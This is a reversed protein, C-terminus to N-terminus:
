VKNDNNHVTYLTQQRKSGESSDIVTTNLESISDEMGKLKQTVQCSFLVYLVTTGHQELMWSDKSPLMQSKM